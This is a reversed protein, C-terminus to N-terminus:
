SGGMAEALVARYSDITEAMGPHRQVLLATEAHLAARVAQTVGTATPPGKLRHLLASASATDGATWTCLGQVHRAYRRKTEADAFSIQQDAILLLWLGTNKPGNLIRDDDFLPVAYAIIQLSGAFDGKLRMAQAYELYPLLQEPDKQVLVAFLALARELAQPDKHGAGLLASALNTLYEVNDPALNVARQLDVAAKDFEAAELEILGLGARAHPTERLALAREYHGRATAADGTSIALDGLAALAHADQLTCDAGSGLAFCIRAAIVAPNFDGAASVQFLEAKLKGKSAALNYKDFSLAEVFAKGADKFLGQDLLADGLAVSRQAMDEEFVAQAEKADLERDDAAIQRLYHLPSADYLISAALAALLALISLVFAWNEVVWSSATRYWPASPESGTERAELVALVVETIRAIEERQSASLFADSATGSSGNM